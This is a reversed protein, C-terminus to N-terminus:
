KYERTKIWQDWFISAPSSLELIEKPSIKLLPNEFFLGTWHEHFIPEQTLHPSDLKRLQNKLPCIIILNLELRAPPRASWFTCSASGCHSCFEVVGQTLQSSGMSSWDRRQITNLGMVWGMFAILTGKIVLLFSQKHLPNEWIGTIRIATNHLKRSVETVQEWNNM